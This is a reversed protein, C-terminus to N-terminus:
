SGAGGAPPPADSPAAECWESWVRRYAAELHRAFRPADMLPSAEMRAPLGARLRNVRDRASGLESAIRVFEDATRAVLEPLCLNMAFTLGARGVVTEGVRTVVPVGMWFADLSTTHGGYPFTDLCIDIRHYTALYDLRPLYYDVFEIREASVGRTEFSEVVRRRASGLPARLIMRSNAVGKLVRSWLSIVGENIKCFNNLCGFAIEDGNRNPPSPVADKSTLPDYCWFTDPLHLLRESYVSGDADPPDLFPDTVRYDIASVGTTGPYGLWTLQVPAPRRAFVPLRGGGMHMTLDVLVDIRDDRVLRAVAADEMGAVDRWGDALARMKQTLEDARRVNSYCFFRSPWATTILSYRFFFCPQPTNASTRVSTVSVCGDTERAITRMSLTRAKTLSATGLTGNSLRGCTNAPVARPTTSCLVSSVATCAQRMPRSRWPRATSPSRKICGARNSVRARSRRLWNRSVLGSRSLASTRKSRRMTGICSRSRQGWPPSPPQCGQNCRWPAACSCSLRGPKDKRSGRSESRSSPPRRYPMM